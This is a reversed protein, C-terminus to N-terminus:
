GGGMLVSLHSFGIDEKELQYMKKTEPDYGFAAKKGSFFGYPMKAFNEVGALINDRYKTDGTREWETMWNGVLAMWDPGFRAHTPYKSKELILRLPDVKGIARNSAEVSERMLDGIREDTTLYYYFRGPAAQSVMVEKSGDGWHRVNHRSGLGAFKGLHHVDVESTHRTMAEAMRFVDEKGTQLYYYWLWMHPMLETNDWAFGGVDYKWERRDEDYAHMVDGYDWFGYWNRQDVEKKYYEFANELQNEVWAKGV